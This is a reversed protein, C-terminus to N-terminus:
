HIDAAGGMDDIEFMSEFQEWISQQNTAVICRLSLACKKRCLEQQANFNGLCGIHDTKEATQHLIDM